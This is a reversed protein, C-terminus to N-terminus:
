GEGATEHELRERVASQVLAANAQGRTAKMVQGVLFGVAQPKGARFDRVAAPNAALAAEVAAAVAGADSIQRFGHNAIIVAAGQGSAAHDELVQRGQARSITGSTVAEVIAAFETADVIVPASAANRLRLYEGTVWNAVGKPELAPAAALTAEFLATADPDAVLVAADYPGLGMVDRYRARRSGPLEALRERVEALWAPELHLPPLDPEPFYRYDDSTEKVRMRYTAGREESWGRTEQLLTEGADLAAGQRDIEFAIAREVARFSNMNKVEVRTGFPETGRKRLSVNAEVRLQGREMDADSAGISRLLLQLEEAYRRAQEATRIEPETVIEMLPAGSRNFDVLSVKRGEADTAHVLKATDEELHARTIAVTFPGDSTDFTLRGLSALPLDYQSIQYGKPLDPYFYNKRDWRTAAPASAEIAVGTTLVHEVARRNITPLAGPLGLCVPCVHSNPPAGDYDTSCGCFMKSATRLQCHVEIGIVAEYRDLASSTTM